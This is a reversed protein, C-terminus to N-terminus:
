DGKVRTKFSLGDGPLRSEIWPLLWAVYWKDGFVERMNSLGGLDYQLQSTKREFLTQGYCLQICQSIHLWSLMILCWLAVFTVVAVFFQYVSLYGLLAGMPPQVICFLTQLSPGELVEMAFHYHFVNAYVAGFWMVCLMALYYRHNYYGICCGAFWCHHDRKLICRNCVKCHHARPPSIAVCYRCRSWSEYDVDTGNSYQKEVATTSRIMYVYNSFTLVYIICAFLMHVQGFGDSTLGNEAYFPLVHFIEFWFAFQSGLIFVSFALWDNSSNAFYSNRFVYHRLVHLVTM